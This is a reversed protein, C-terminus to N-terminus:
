VTVRYVVGQTSAVLLKGTNDFALGSIENNNVGQLALNVRRIEACTTKNVLWM